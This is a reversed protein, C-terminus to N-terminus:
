RLIRRDRTEVFRNLDLLVSWRQQDQQGSSPEAIRACSTKTPAPPSLPTADEESQHALGRAAAVSFEGTLVTRAGQATSPQGWSLVGKYPLAPVRM